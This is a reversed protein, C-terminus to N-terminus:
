ILQPLLEAARGSLAITAWKDLPGPDLNVVVVQAGSSAALEVLGAAPYVEGSTGVVVVVDADLVARKSASWVAPDLNEDFWVVAPRLLSGCEICSRLPPPNGFDVAERRNCNSCRDEALSGHLRHIIAGAPACREHLGDVNQTVVVAGARQLQAIAEHGANPAIKALQSRRWSYWDYVLKPDRAFGQPSALQRPDYKGWLADTSAGRFTPVGSDASVGAGTLIVLQKAANIM